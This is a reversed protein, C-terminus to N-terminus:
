WISLIYGVALLSVLRYGTALIVKIMMVERKDGGWITNSVTMPLVFGLWVMFANQIGSYEPIARIVCALGIVMLASAIVELTILKWM